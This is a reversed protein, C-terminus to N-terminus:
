DLLKWGPSEVSIVQLDQAAVNRPVAGMLETEMPRPWPQPPTNRVLKWFAQPQQDRLRGKLVSAQGARGITPAWIMSTGRTKEKMSTETQQSSPNLSTQAAQQILVSKLKWFDKPCVDWNPTFGKLAECTLLVNTNRVEISANRKSTDDWQETVFLFKYQIYVAESCFKM